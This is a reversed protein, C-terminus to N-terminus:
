RSSTISSSAGSARSKGLGGDIGYIAGIGQSFEVLDEYTASAMFGAVDFSGDPFLAAFAEEFRDEVIASLFLAPLEPPLPYTEGAWVLAAPEGQAAARAARAADLDITRPTNAM